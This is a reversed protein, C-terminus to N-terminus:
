TKYQRMSNKSYTKYQKIYHNIRHKIMNRITNVHHKMYHKMSHKYQTEYHKIDIINLIIFVFFSTLSWHNRLGLSM